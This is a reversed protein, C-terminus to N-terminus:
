LSSAQFTAYVRPLLLADISRLRSALRESCQFTAGHASPTVQLQMPRETQVHGQARWVVFDPLASLRKKRKPTQSTQPDAVNSLLLWCSFLCEKNNDEDM